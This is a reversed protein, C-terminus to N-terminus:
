HIISLMLSFQNLKTGAPYFKTFIIYNFNLPNYDAQM